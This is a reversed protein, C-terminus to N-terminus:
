QSGLIVIADFDSDTELTKIEAALTYKEALDSKLWDLYNKKDEKIKIITEEYDFSDANSTKIDQYGKDELFRAAEGAAGKLGGGNQIEMKLDGRDIAPTPTPEPEEVSVITPTPTTEPQSTEKGKIAKRYVSIGGGILALGGIVVLLILFVKKFNFSSKGSSYTIPETLFPKEEKQGIPEM